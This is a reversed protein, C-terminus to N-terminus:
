PMPPAPKRVQIVYVGGSHFLIRDAPPTRLVFGDRQGRERLAHSLADFPKYYDSKDWVSADTLVVDVGFPAAAADLEDIRTAYAIRLSAEIRPRLKRYYTVGWPLSIETSALVSRRAFMPVMDALDPYAAVLTSKPLTQLFAYARNLDADVPTRYVYRAGPLLALAVILPAGVAALREVRLWEPLRLSQRWQEARNTVICAASSGAIIALCAVSWRSHRNPLYLTFLM